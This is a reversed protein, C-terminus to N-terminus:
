VSGFANAPSKLCFLADTDFSDCLEYCQIGFVHFFSSIALNLFYIYIYIRAVAQLVHPLVHCSVALRRVWIWDVMVISDHAFSQSVSSWLM